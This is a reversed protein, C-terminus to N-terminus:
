LVFIVFQAAQRYMVKEVIKNSERGFVPRVMKKKFVGRSKGVYLYLTECGCLVIIKKENKLIDLSKL